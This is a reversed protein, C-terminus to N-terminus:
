RSSFNPATYAAVEELNFVVSEDEARWM